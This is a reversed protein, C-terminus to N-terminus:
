CLLHFKTVKVKGELNSLEGELVEQRCILMSYPHLIGALKCELTNTSILVTTLLSCNM